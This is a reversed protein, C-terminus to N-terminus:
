RDFIVPPRTAEAFNDVQLRDPSGVTPPINIPKTHWWWWRRYRYNWSSVTMRHDTVHVVAFSNWRYKASGVNYVDYGHWRYAGTAHFHGHFIGVVNFGQLVRQLHDRFPGYGFWNTESYAGKLPYHFYLIVPRERGTKALTQQLWALGKRGPADALCILTLDGWEWSYRVDGHREAIQSSVYDGYNWDHNGFGEYVPIRLLGDTGDRGYYATFRKWESPRGNETLDGAVLLGRPQDVRGGLLAPYLRGAISNMQEVVLAHERDIGVPHSVPDFEPEQESDDHVGWGFHTDATVLFTVDLGGQRPRRVPGPAAPIPLYREFYLAAPRLVRLLRGPHKPRAVATWAGVLLALVAGVVALIRLTLPVRRM